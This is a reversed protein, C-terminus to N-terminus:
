PCTNPYFVTGKSVAVCTCPDCSVAGILRTHTVSVTGAGRSLSFDDGELVSQTIDSNASAGDTDVGLSNVTGNEASTTIGNAELTGSRNLIGIALSGDRGIFSGGNLKATAHDIFLGANEGTGRQGTAKVDDLTVISGEGLLVGYDYSCGVGFGFYYADVNSVGAGITNEKTGLAACYTNGTAYNSITLDRVSTADDLVVTPKFFWFASVGDGVIYTLAKGAGQLHVHPKLIVNETYWGPGVVVLYPNIATADKISDVAAQISKYQGGSKAVVVVNSIRRGSIVVFIDSDQAWAKWGVGLLCWALVLLFIKRKMAFVENDMM